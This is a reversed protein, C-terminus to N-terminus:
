ALSQSLRHGTEPAPADRSTLCILVSAAPDPPRKMEAGANAIREPRGRGFDPRCGAKPLFWPFTVPMRGVRAKMRAALFRELDPSITQDYKSVAYFTPKFHWPLLRRGTALCRRPPPSGRCLSRQRATFVGHFYKLSRMRPSSPTVQDWPGPCTEPGRAAHHSVKGSLAFRIAAADPARAAIHGARPLRRILNGSASGPVWSHGVLM